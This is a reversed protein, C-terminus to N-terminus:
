ALVDRINHKINLFQLGVYFHRGRITGNGTYGKVRDKENIYTWGIGIVLPSRRPRPSKKDIIKISLNTRFGNDMELITNGPTTHSRPLGYVTELSFVRYHTTLQPGIIIDNINFGAGLYFNPVSISSRDQAHIGSTMCMILVVFSLLRKM